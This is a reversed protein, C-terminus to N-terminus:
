CISVFRVAVRRNKPTQKTPGNSKVAPQTAARGVPPDFRAAAVGTAGAPITPTILEQMVRDARDLSLKLNGGLYTTPMEDTHGELRLRILPNDLLFKRLRAMETVNAAQYQDGNFVKPQNNTFQFTTDSDREPEPTIWLFIAGMAFGGQNLLLTRIRAIGADPASRDVFRQAILSWDGPEVFDLSAASGIAAPSPVDGKRTRLRQAPVAEVALSTASTGFVFDRLAQARDLDFQTWDVATADNDKSTTFNAYPQGSPDRARTTDQRPAVFDNPYADNLLLRNVYARNGLVSLWTNTESSLVIGAFRAPTHILVNGGIVANLASALLTAKSATTGTPSSLAARDAPVFQSWLWASLPPPAGSQLKTIFSLPQKFDSSVITFFSFNHNGVVYLQLAHRSVREATSPPETNALLDILLRAVTLAQLKDIVEYVLTGDLNGNAWYYSSAEPVYDNGTNLPRIALHYTEPWSGQEPLNLQAAGSLFVRGSKKPESDTGVRRNPAILRSLVTKPGITTVGGDDTYKESVTIQIDTPSDSDIVYTKTLTSARNKTATVKFTSVREIKITTIKCNTGSRTITVKPPQPAAPADITQPAAVTNCLAM